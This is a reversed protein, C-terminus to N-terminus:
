RKRGSRRIRPAPPPSVKLIDPDQQLRHLEEPETIETFRPEAKGDEKMMRKEQKMLTEAKFLAKRADKDHPHDTRLDTDLQYCGFAITLNEILFHRDGGPLELLFKKNRIKEGIASIRNYAERQTVGPMLIVFEDGEKKSRAIFDKSRKADSRVMSKLLAAVSRIMGDAGDHSLDNYKKFHNIDCFIVTVPPAKWETQPDKKSKEYRAFLKKRSEIIKELRDDLAINNPLGTMPNVNRRAELLANEKELERKDKLLDHREGLIKSFLAAAEHSRGRRPVPMGYTSEVTKFVKSDARSVGM